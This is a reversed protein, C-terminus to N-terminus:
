NVTVNRRRTPKSTVLLLQVFRDIYVRRYTYEADDITEDVLTRAYVVRPDSIQRHDLAFAKIELRINLSFYISLYIQSPVANAAVVSTKRIVFKWSVVQSTSLYFSLSENEHSKGWRRYNRYIHIYIYMRFVRFPTNNLPKITHFSQSPHTVRMVRRIISRCLYPLCVPWM